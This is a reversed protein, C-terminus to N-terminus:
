GAPRSSTSFFCNADCDFPCDLMFTQCVLGVTDDINNPYDRGGQMVAIKVVRYFALPFQGSAMQTQALMEFYHRATSAERFMIRLKARFEASLM